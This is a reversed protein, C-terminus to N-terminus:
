IITGWKTVLWLSQLATKEPAASMVIFCLLSVTLGFPIIPFIANVIPPANIQLKDAKTLHFFIKKVNHKTAGQTTHPIHVPDPANMVRETYFYLFGFLLFVFVFFWKGPGFKLTKQILFIAVVFIILATIIPIKSLEPFYQLIEIDIINRHLVKKIFDILEM